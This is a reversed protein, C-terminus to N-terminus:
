PGNEKEQYENHFRNYAKMVKFALVEAVSADSVFSIGYEAYLDSRCRWRDGIGRMLEYVDEHNQSELLALMGKLRLWQYYGLQRGTHWERKATIFECYRDYGFERWVAKSAEQFRMMKTNRKPKATKVAKIWFRWVDLFEWRLKRATQAEKKKCSLVESASQVMCIPYDDSNDYIHAAVEFIKSM